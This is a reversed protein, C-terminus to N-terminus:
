ENEGETQEDLKLVYIEKNVRCGVDTVFQKENVLKLLGLKGRFEAPLTTDDYLQVNDDIKVLYKGEDVVILASKKAGMADKVGQITSLEDSAIRLMELNKAVNSDNKIAYELFLAYGPGKIVYDIARQKIEDQYKRAEREKGHHEQRVVTDATNVADTAVELVSRPKFTKKAKAIAKEFNDTRYVNQRTTIRHSEIEIVAGTNSKYGKEISGLTEWNHSVVFKNAVMTKHQTHAPEAWSFNTVKFTWMPNKLALEWIVKALISTVKYASVLEKTEAAHVNPLDMPNNTTNM